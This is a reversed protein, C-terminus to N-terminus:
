FHIGLHSSNSLRRMSPFWWLPTYVHHQGGRHIHVTTYLFRLKQESTCFITGAEFPQCCTGDIMNLSQTTIKPFFCGQPIKKLHIKTAILVLLTMWAASIFDQLITMCNEINKKTCSFMQHLHKLFSEIFSYTHKIFYSEGHGFINWFFLCPHSFIRSKLQLLQRSVWIFFFVLWSNAATVRWFLLVKNSSAKAM